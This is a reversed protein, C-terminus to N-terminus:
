AARSQQPPTSFTASALHEVHPGDSATVAHLLGPRAMDLEFVGPVILIESLRRGNESLAFRFAHERDVFLGGRRHAQDQAIWNGHSNQGILFLEPKSGSHSSPPEAQDV